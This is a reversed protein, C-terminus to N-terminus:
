RLAAEIEIRVQPDQEQELAADLARRAEEGGIEGLAWAAHARLVWDDATLYSAAASAAGPGPANGLAVLANRRLVSPRRRPLYFHGYADLLEEDGAALLALVDIRGRPEGARDLARWGPPCADLCDDCGYIRDGMPRRLEVPIVGPAQSWRALCRRADIVGPAVIAGTPCAPMCATCTGCDRRMPTSSVLEADTAVSGLLVWPGAGPVLVMSSKGWWGVGARVAAARDVLRNDDALVESRFGAGELVTALEGLLTRLPRYHDETAFRAIRGTGPVEPGPSGAGPLYSWAAVVLRRAWPLSAAVDTSRVPDNYTFTLGAHSGDEKRRELESRVDDFPGADCIGFGAAGAASAAEELRTELTM